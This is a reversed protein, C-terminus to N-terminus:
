QFIFLFASSLCHKKNKQKNKAPLSSCVAFEAINRQKLLDAEPQKQRLSRQL